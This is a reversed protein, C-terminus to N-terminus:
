GEFAHCIHNIVVEGEDYSVSIIDFRIYYEAYKKCGAYIKAARIIKRRQRPGVFEEPLGYRDTERTKVEVFCLTDDIKAILDVESGSVRYNRELIEYGNKELFRAAAKEGEKGSLLEQNKL